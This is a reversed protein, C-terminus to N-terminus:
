AGVSLLSRITTADVISVRKGMAGAAEEIQQPTKIGVIASTIGPHMLTVALVLQVTSLNYKEAIPKLQAVRQAILKFREGQFDPREARLDTFTEEGTYKGSLLGLHLSSYVLTGMDNALCYPLVDVEIARKLLSYPPQATAFNGYAHGARMQECNWNSVGYARIKGAKVLSDMTEAVEAPHALPDHSHCQYLDITDIDLRRLSDDCAQRIYDSSLDGHRSGDPYFHNFVKTAIVVQDRPLPKIAKGLVTEAHGDGYADATDFFNIGVDFAHRIAGTIEEQSQEGWYRPSLQWTGYCIPSVQLESRGLRVRTPSTPATM